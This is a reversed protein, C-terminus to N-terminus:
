AQSQEGDPVGLVEVTIRVTARGSYAPVVGLAEVVDTFVPALPEGLTCIAKSTALVAYPKAGRNAPDLMVVAGM